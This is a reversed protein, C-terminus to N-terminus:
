ITEDRPVFIKGKLWLLGEKLEWDQVKSGKKITDLVEKSRPDEYIAEGILDNIEQDSTISAIFLDPKLLVQNEVGGELPVLDHRRSLIDVKKNHSGPRYIIQFNYDVLFNAWQIQRKNLLQSTSFYELNKHDTLIQIPLESGELLYQWEKLARIVALLEKDFINYNREV